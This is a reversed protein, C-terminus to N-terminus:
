VRECKCIHIILIYIIVYSTTAITPYASHVKCERECVQVRTIYCLITCYITCYLVIYHVYSVIYHLTYYLIICFIITCLIDPYCQPYSWYM